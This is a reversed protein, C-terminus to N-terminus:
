PILGVLNILTGAAAEAVPALAGFLLAFPVLAMDAALPAGIAGLLDGDALHDFFLNANYLPLGTAIATLTDAVPLLTAYDAAVTATLANLIDGPPSLLTADSTPFNFFGLLSRALDQPPGDFGMASAENLLVSWVSDAPVTGIQYNDPDQLQAVADAIGQQVGNGLATLVEAPDLNTPFLGYPTPVDAYGQSWGQTISGYGLNVLIRTVPELLDYLPQGIVPLLQLPALLPLSQAPIMYYDTLSDATTPLQIASAIQEPSYGFYLGHALLLGFYANLDALLNLPYQPFDAFGDYEATYMATPYLDAPAAGNFTIGLSPFSPHSDAPVDFRELVGGNPTNPNGLLVFRVDESPVGHQALQAMTLSAVSSSQSWGFVVVPHEADVGGGAIQRLISETLMQSGQAFSADTTLSNVGTVPWLGEPTFLAQPTGTFGRPQLYLADATDVYSQPPIPFGSPGLVFATGDGLGGTLTVARPQADSAAPPAPSVTILGAGVIAVSCFVRLM